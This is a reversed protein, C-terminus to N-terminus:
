KVWGLSLTLWSTSKTRKEGLQRGELFSTKVHWRDDWHCVLRAGKLGARAGRHCVNTEPAPLQLPAAQTQVALGGQM